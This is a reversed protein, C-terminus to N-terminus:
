GRWGMALVALLLFGIAVAMLADQVRGNALIRLAKGARWTADTALNVIGDVVYRDLWGVARTAGLYAVRYGGEIADDVYFRRELVRAPLAFREKMRAPSWTGARYGSWALAIGLLAAVTGCAAIWIPPHPAPVLGPFSISSGLAVPIGARFVGAVLALIALVFMPWAMARPAEHPEDGSRREGFFALFFARFMYFATLFATLLLVAFAIPHGAEFVGALIEDKSFFGSTPWVGCLAIAGALFVIGTRRMPKWLGGMGFLDNTHTAHILAGAGLFLLAKFFAHTLLHFYAATAAGAGVAAMMYGLQSVTSFALVRKVDREVLAMSAALIATLAGIALVWAAVEPAAGLLPSVRIMLYVGAAVMTAAHILASVPTPGEMADPLWIHLPFQASKGMAGVYLGAVGMTLMSGALTGSSARAFLESFVFTGGAYWLVVVGFAFGVDGLRTTWFAKLAARAAEPKRYWFGILLYSGLGVLEWFVYTQLTNHALVLGLMAFSFLSHYAYYRGLAAPPEDRMYELSYIQVLLSVLAVVLLMPASVGDLLIGFRIPDFERMPAWLWEVVVPTRTARFVNLACFASALSGAMALISLYAAPRGSRRLPAVIGLLALAAVPLVLSLIAWTM